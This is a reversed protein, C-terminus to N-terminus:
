EQEPTPTPAPAPPLQDPGNFTGLWAALWDGNQFLSIVTAGMSALALSFGWTLLVGRHDMRKERELAGAKEYALLWHEFDAVSEPHGVLHDVVAQPHVSKTKVPWLSVLALAGSFLAIVTAVRYLLGDGTWSTTTIIGALVLLLSAKADMGVSRSAAAQAQRELVGLTIRVKQEAPTVAPPHSPAVSEVSRGARRCWSM